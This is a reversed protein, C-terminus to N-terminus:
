LVRIELMYMGSERVTRAQLDRKGHLACFGASQQVLEASNSV